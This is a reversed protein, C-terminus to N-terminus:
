GVSLRAEDEDIEEAALAIIDDKCRKLRLVDNACRRDAYMTTTRAFRGSAIGAHRTAVENM